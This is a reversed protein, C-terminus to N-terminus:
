QVTKVELGDSLDRPTTPTTAVTDGEALGGTIEAEDVNVIAPNEPTGLEVPTRVLRNNIIRFVYPQATTGRLADHPITLVHTHKATTVTVNVNANPELVDANDVTILCEGVFRTLYKVITTPVQSVQGYWAMRPKAEWTIKVPQGVALSGIDPEDFYGIIRKRSLDAVYILDTGTDVYDYQSVPISYVTGSIPSHIDDTDYASQAAAVAARADELQAQARARDADDYRQTSHQEISRILNNDAQVRNQAATVGAPSEAGQQQLKQRATLDAEDQQLQLRARRLDAESTNREDQTGGHEIDSAALEAARLTSQAHALNALALKDDMKLLLQGAKVKDGVNVYIAQVQGAAQAHAGFDDLLEVEGTTTTRKELDQYTVQATRVSVQERTLSRVAYVALIILFLAAGWVVYYTARNSKPTSAM